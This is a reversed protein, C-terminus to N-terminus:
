HEEYVGGKLYNEIIKRSAFFLNEPLNNIDFWRWETIEDPEMVKPEGVFDKCLFGITVFHAHENIDDAVSILKLSNVKISTEEEVERKACELLKERLEVKGGPLTWTGEGHLESDAKEPDTNRLGLLIKNDNNIMLVGVGIGVFDVGPKM